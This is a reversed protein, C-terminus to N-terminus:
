TMESDAIHDLTIQMGLVDWYEQEKRDRRINASHKFKIAVSILVQPKSSLVDKGRQMKASHYPLCTMVVHFGLSPCARLLLLCASIRGQLSGREINSTLLM